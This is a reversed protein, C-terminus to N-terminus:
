NWSSVVRRAGQVSDDVSAIAAAGFEGPYLRSVADGLPDLRAARLDTLTMNPARIGDAEFAFQRLLFGLQQHLERTSMRGSGHDHEAADIMVLYRDRLGARDIVPMWSADSPEVPRPRARTLRVAAIVLLVAGAVTVLAIVLWITSYQAPPVFIPTSVFALRNQSLVTM